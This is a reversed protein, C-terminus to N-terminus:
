FLLFFFTYHLSDLWCILYMLALIKRGLSVPGPHPIHPERVRSCISGRGGSTFCGASSALLLTFCVNIVAAQM